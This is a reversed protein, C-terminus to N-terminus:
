VGTETGRPFSGGTGVSHTGSGTQICLLTSIDRVRVPFKDVIEQNDLV